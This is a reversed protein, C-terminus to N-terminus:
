LDGEIFLITDINIKKALNIIDEKTIKAINEKQLEKEDTDFYLNTFYRDTISGLYDDVEEIVINIFTKANKIDEETFDGQKMMEIQNLIEEKTKTYNDKSIGAALIFLGDLRYFNSNISYCLSKKERVNQFLKSKPSNGFIINYILSVYKKEYKTFTKTSSGMILRSQNFNNSIVDETLEKEYNLYLDDSYNKTGKFCYNKTIIDETKKFDIDGIVLIDINNNNFFDKYYKYLNTSTIKDLNDLTGTLSYNYPNNTKLLEKYKKITYNNPNELERNIEDKLMNKNLNFYEENFKNNDINPNNIIESLFVLAKELLGEETYKDDIVSMSIENFIYKSRRTTSPVIELGYLDAKKISLKRPSNYNKSSFLLNNFLLNRITIDEEKIENWFFLKVFVTKFNNNKILHLNYGDKEIKKIEM